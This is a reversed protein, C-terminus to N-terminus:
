RPRHELVFRTPDLYGTKDHAYGGGLPLGIRGRLEFHLHAQYVGGANGVGGVLQGRTVRAGPVIAADISSLHAYLSEVPLGDCDHAIRVVNGWGGGVDEASVVVGNATATVPDGYDSDGGRPGNWDSGLHDNVGFPQSDHYGRADPAGIPFDFGDCAPLATAAAPASGARAVWIVSVGIALLVLCLRM